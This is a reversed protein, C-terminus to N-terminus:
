KKLLRSIVYGVLFGAGISQLPNNEIYTKVEKTLNNLRKEIEAKEIVDGAEALLNHLKEDIMQKIEKEM